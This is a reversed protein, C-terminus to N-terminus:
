WLAQKNYIRLACETATHSSCFRDLCSISLIWLNWFYSFPLINFVDSFDLFSQTHTKGITMRPTSFYKKREIVASGCATLFVHDFKISCRIWQQPNKNQQFSPFFSRFIFFYFYFLVLQFFLFVVSRPHTGEGPTWSM